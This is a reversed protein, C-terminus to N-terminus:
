AGEIKKPTVVIRSQDAPIAQLHRSVDEGDLRVNYNEFVRGPKQQEFVQLVTIGHPVDIKEARGGGDNDIFTILPM